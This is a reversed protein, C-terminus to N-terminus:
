ANRLNIQNQVEKLELTCVEPLPSRVSQIPNSGLFFSRFIFSALIVESNFFFPSVYFKFFLFLSFFLGLRQPHPPRGQLGSLLDAALPPLPTGLWLRGTALLIGPLGDFCPVAWYLETFGLLVRYFGTHGLIVWYLGIYGLIVLYVMTFISLVTVVEIFSPLLSAFETFGPLVRYFGTFTLFVRYFETYGM